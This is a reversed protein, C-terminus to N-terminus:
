FSRIDERSKSWSCPRSIAVTQEMGCLAEFEAGEIDLKVFNVKSRSERCFEDITNVFVQIQRYGGGDFGSNAANGKFPDYDVYLSNNQGSLNEVFFIPPGVTSGLAQEIVKIQPRGATNRRLYHLNAPVPEFVIVQGTAGCLQAFYLSFHGMHGGAELLTDGVNILESLFKM